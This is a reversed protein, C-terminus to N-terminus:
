EVKGADASTFKEYFRRLLPHAVLLIAMYPINDRFGQYQADSNDVRRGPVWGHSLRDEYHKYGPHEPQSVDYVSKFMLIPITLFAVYYVYYEPTNWKSPQANPLPEGTKSAFRTDLTEVNFLSKIM